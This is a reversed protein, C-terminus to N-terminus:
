FERRRVHTRHAGLANIQKSTEVDDANNATIEISGGAEQLLFHHTTRTHDFGMVHDGRKNMEEHAMDSMDKKPQQQQANVIVLAAIALILSAVTKM